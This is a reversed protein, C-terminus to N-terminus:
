TKYRATAQEQTTEVTGAITLVTHIWYTSGDTLTVTNPIIGHYKFPATTIGSMITLTLASTGSVITSTLSHVSTTNLRLTGTAALFDTSTLTGIGDAEAEVYVANASNIFLSSPM